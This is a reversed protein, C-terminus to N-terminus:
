FGQVGCGEGHRSVGHRAVQDDNGSAVGAVERQHAIEDPRQPVLRLTAVDRDTHEIAAERGVLARPALRLARADDFGSPIDHETVAECRVGTESRHRRPRMEPGIKWPVIEVEPEVGVHPDLVPLGDFEHPQPRSVGVDGDNGLHVARIAVEAVPAVVEFARVPLRVGIGEPRLCRRPEDTSREVIGAHEGNRGARRRPFDPGFGQRDALM